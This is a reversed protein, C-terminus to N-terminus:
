AEASGVASQVGREDPPHFAALRMANATVLLSGGMDGVIVAVALDVVGAVAGVALLLKLVLAAGINFRVTRRTRRALSLVYPVRRLDDTMLAVDATEITAPSGIAGMAIGVTAEALAPAANVGDGIMAVAGNRERLERMAALKDEPLLDGRIEDVGVQRGVEDAVARRDGTLLVVPRVRLAHLAAVLGRAEPRVGDELAIRAATGKDTTAYVRMTGPEGGGLLAAQTEGVLRETGVTVVIGDVAGSVGKGPYSKFGTLSGGALIGRSAAFRVVAEGV